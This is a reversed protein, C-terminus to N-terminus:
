FIAAFYPGTLRRGTIKRPTISVWVNHVGEAWPHPFADGMQRLLEPVSEAEQCSGRILISWGSKTEPDAHDVEFAVPGALADRLHSQAGLRFVIHGGALGYNVPVAAPGETDQFVLRGIRQTRILEFCEASSLAELTRQPMIRGKYQRDVM